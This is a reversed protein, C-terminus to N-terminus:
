RFSMAQGAPVLEIANVNAHTPQELAWCIAEAVDDAGLTPVANGAPATAPGSVGTRVSQFETEVRGPAVNTVRVGQSALEPRLSAGFHAVFAKTAAYVHGSVYPHHAGISTVNVIHGRASAKLSPLLVSTNHLVGMCNTMVMTRMASEALTDFNDTGLMLGANNILTDVPTFAPPLDQYVQQVQDIDQVDCAAVHLAGEPLGELLRKLRELRRGLAVVRHGRAVLKAVCARGIGSTAGTVWVIRSASVSM